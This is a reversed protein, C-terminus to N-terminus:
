CPQWVIKQGGLVVPLMSAIIGFKIFAIVFTWFERLNQKKYSIIILIPCFFSLAIAIIPKLSTVTEM